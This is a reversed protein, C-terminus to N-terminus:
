SDESHRSKRRARAAKISFLLIAAIGALVIVYPLWNLSGSFTDGTQSQLARLAALGLLVVGIGLFVAGLIGWGLWALLKRLPVLAEQRFYAILMDRVEELVESPKRQSARPDNTTEDAALSPATESNPRKGRSAM